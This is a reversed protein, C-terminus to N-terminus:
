GVALGLAAFSLASCKRRLTRKKLAGRKLSRDAVKLKSRSVGVSLDAPTKANAARVTAWLHINAFARASLVNSRYRLKATCSRFDSSVLRGRRYPVVAVDRDPNKKDGGWCWDVYAAAALFPGLPLRGERLNRDMLALVGFAALAALSAGLIVLPLKLVGAM